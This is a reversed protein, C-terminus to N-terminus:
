TQAEAADRTSRMPASVIQHAWSDIDSELYRIQRRGVRCFKPGGGRCRMTRLTNTSRKIHSVTWLRDSTGQETYLPVSSNGADESMTTSSIHTNAM